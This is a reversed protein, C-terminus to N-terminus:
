QCRKAGKMREAGKDEIRSLLRLFLDCTYCFHPGGGAMKSAACLRGTFFWCFHGEKAVWSVCNEKVEDPCLRAEWCPAEGALAEGKLKFLLFYVIREMNSPVKRWGQEYSEVAKLSVGLLAALDKQSKGLLSRARAFGYCDMRGAAHDPSSDEKRSPMKVLKM